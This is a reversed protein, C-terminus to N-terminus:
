TFKLIASSKKFVPEPPKKGMKIADQPCYEACLGCYCCKGLHITEIKEKVTIANNPCVKECLHCGICKETDVLHEGRYGEVAKLKEQPFNLTMRDGVLNKTIRLPKIFGLLKDGVQRIKEIIKMPKVQGYRSSM